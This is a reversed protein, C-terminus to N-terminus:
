RAQTLPGVSREAATDRLMWCMANLRYFLAESFTSRVVAPFLPVAATTIVQRRPTTFSLWAFLLQQDVASLQEAHSIVLTGVEVTPLRLLCADCRVIPPISTRELLGLIREVSPSSGIILLNPKQYEFLRREEDSIGFRTWDEVDDGSGSDGTVDVVAIPPNARNWRSELRRFRERLGANWSHRREITGDHRM